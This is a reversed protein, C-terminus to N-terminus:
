CQGQMVMKVGWLYGATVINHQQFTGTGIASEIKLLYKELTKLLSQNALSPLGENIPEELCLIQLQDIYRPLNEPVPPCLVTLHPAFLTVEEESPIGYYPLVQAGQQLYYRSVRQVTALNSGIVMIRSREMFEM